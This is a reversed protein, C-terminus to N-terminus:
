IPPVANRIDTELEAARPVDLMAQAHEHVAGAHDLNLACVRGDKKPDGFFVSSL